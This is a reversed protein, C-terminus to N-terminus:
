KVMIEEEEKKFKRNEKNEVGKVKLYAKSCQGYKQKINM